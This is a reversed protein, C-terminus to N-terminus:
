DCFRPFPDSLTFLNLFSLRDLLLPGRDEHFVTLYEKAGFSGPRQRYAGGNRRECHQSM